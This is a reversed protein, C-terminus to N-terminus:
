LALALGIGELVEVTTVGGEVAEGTATAGEVLEETTTAAEEIQAATAGEAAEAAALAAAAAAAGAAALVAACNMAAFYRHCDNLMVVKDQVQRRHGTNGGKFCTTDLAVRATIEATIAAIKGALTVCNDRATCKGLAQVVAKAADVAANLILYRAWSCDGPPDMGDGPWRQVVHNDMSLASQASPASGGEAVATQVYSRGDDAEARGFARGAASSALRDAERESADGPRSMGPSVSGAGQQVVHALEHFLLQRGGASEPSFQGNAFVVHNGSTYARADVARAAQVAQGDSHVRVQSFDHGFRREADTRIAQPLPRGPSALAAFVVPPAFGSGAM